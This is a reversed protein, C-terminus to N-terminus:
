CNGDPPSCTATAGSPLHCNCRSGKACYIGWGECTAMKTALEHGEEYVVCQTGLVTCELGGPCWTDKVNDCSDFWGGSGGRAISSAVFSAAFCIWCLLLVGLYRRM